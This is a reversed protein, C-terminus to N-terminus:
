LVKFEEFPEQCETCVWMAKCSTSGFPSTRRTQRSGCRPCRVSLTLAVPGQARQGPPAIGFERLVTRAQATLDDTTWAPALVFRVAVDIGLDATVRAVDAAMTATAPCGSYTPTLEVVIRGAERHVRRLVGLDALTLVPIEPDVVSGTALAVRLLEADPRGGPDGLASGLASRIRPHDATVQPADPMPVLPNGIGIAELTLRDTEAPLAGVPSAVDGPRSRVAGSM